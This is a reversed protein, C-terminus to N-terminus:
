YLHKWIQDCMSKPLRWFRYSFDLRYSLNVLCLAFGVIDFKSLQRFPVNLINFYNRWIQTKFLFSRFQGFSQRRLSSYLCDREGCQRPRSTKSITNGDFWRVKLSEITLFNVRIPFTTTTCWTRLLSQDSLSKSAHSVNTYSALSLTFLWLSWLKTIGDPIIVKVLISAHLSLNIAIITIFVFTAFCRARVAGWYIDSPNKTILFVTLVLMFPCPCNWAWHPGNSFVM